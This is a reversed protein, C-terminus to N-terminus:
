IKDVTRLYQYENSQLLKEIKPLDERKFIDLGYEKKFKMLVINPITAIHKYDGRQPRERYERQLRKNRELIPTCNQVTELHVNGNEVVANTRVGGSQSLLRKM